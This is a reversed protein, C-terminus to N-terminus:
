WLALEDGADAVRDRSPVLRAGHALGARRVLKAAQRRRGACSQGLEAGLNQEGVPRGGAGRHLRLLHRRRELPQNFRVRQEGAEAKLAAPERYRM